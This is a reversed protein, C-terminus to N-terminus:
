WSGRQAAIGARMGGIWEMPFLAFPLRQRSWPSDRRQWLLPTCMSHCMSTYFFGSYTPSQFQLVPCKRNQRIHHTQFSHHILLSLCDLVPFTLNSNTKIEQQTQRAAQKHTHFDLAGWGLFVRKCYISNSPVQWWRSNLTTLIPVSVNCTIAVARLKRWM